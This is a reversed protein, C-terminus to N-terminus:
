IRYTTSVRSDEVRQNERDIEVRAAQEERTVEGHVRGERRREIDRQKQSLRILYPITYSKVLGAKGNCRSNQLLKQKMTQESLTKMLFLYLSPHSQGELPVHSRINISPEEPMVSM